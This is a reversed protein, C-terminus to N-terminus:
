NNKKMPGVNSNVKKYLKKILTTFCGLRYLHSSPAPPTEIETVSFLFSFKLSPNIRSGEFWPAIVWKRRM